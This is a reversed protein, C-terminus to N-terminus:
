RRLLARAALRRSLAEGVARDRWLLVLTGFLGVHLLLAGLGVHTMAFILGPSLGMALGLGTYIAMAGAGAPLGLRWTVAGAALAAMAFKLLGMAALLRTLDPDAARAAASGPLALAALGAAAALVVAGLYVSRRRLSMDTGALARTDISAGAVLDAM